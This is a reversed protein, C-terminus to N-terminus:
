VRCVWEEYRSAIETVCTVVDKGVLNRIDPNQYKFTEVARDLCSQRVIMRQKRAEAVPDRPAGRFGGGGFNGAPKLGAKLLVKDWGNQEYECTVVDGIKLATTKFEDKLKPDFVMFQCKASKKEQTTRDNWTFEYELFPLQADIRTITGSGTKMVATM